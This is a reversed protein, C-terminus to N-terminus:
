KINVACATTYKHDLTKKERKEKLELSFHQPPPPLFIALDWIFIQCIREM